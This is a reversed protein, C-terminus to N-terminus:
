ETDREEVWRVTTFGEEWGVRDLQMADIQFCSVPHDRFGEKGKLSKMVDQAKERTSFIGILKDEDRPGDDDMLEYSHWLAYVERHEAQNM